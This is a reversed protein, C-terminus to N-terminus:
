SNSYIQMPRIELDTYPKQRFRICMTMFEYKIDKWLFDYQEHKTFGMHIFMPYFMHMPRNLQGNTQIAELYSGYVFCYM